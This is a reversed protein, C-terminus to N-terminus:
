PRKSLIDVAVPALLSGVRGEADPCEGSSKRIHYTDDSRRDAEHIPKPVAPFVKRFLQFKRKVRSAPAAMTIM